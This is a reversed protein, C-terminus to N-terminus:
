RSSSSNCIRPCALRFGMALFAMWQTETCNYDNNDYNHRKRQETFLRFCIALINPSYPTNRVDINWDHHSLVRVISDEDLEGTFSQFREVLEHQQPTLQNMTGRRSRRRLVVFGLSYSKPFLLKLIFCLISLDFNSSLLICHTSPLILM